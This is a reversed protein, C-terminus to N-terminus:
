TKIKINRRPWVIESFFLSRSLPLIATLVLRCTYHFIGPKPFIGLCVRVNVFLMICIRILEYCRTPSCNMDDTSLWFPTIAMSLSQVANAGKQNELSSTLAHIQHFQETVTYSCSIRTTHDLWREIQTHNATESERRCLHQNKYVTNGFVYHSIYFSQYYDYEKVTVRSRIM